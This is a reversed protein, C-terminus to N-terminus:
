LWFGSFVLCFFFVRHQFLGSVSAVYVGFADTRGADFAAKDGTFVMLAPAIVVGTYALYRLFFAIRPLGGAEARSADLIAQAGDVIGTAALAVVAVLLLAMVAAARKATSPTWVLAAAGLGALAGVVGIPLLAGSIWS